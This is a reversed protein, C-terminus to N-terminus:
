RALRRLGVYQLIAFVLVIDAIFAIGWKGATTFAVLNTFILIVSGLVWILDAYVAFQAFGTNIPDAKAATHIQWGYLLLGTGLSLIIWSASLGIFNAIAKSFLVFALGSTLSFISNGYLANKLLTSNNTSM